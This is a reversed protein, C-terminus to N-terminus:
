LWSEPGKLRGDDMYVCIMVVNSLLKLTTKLEFM